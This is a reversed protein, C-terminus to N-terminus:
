RKHSETRENVSIYATDKGSLEKREVEGKPVVVLGLCEDKVELVGGKRDPGVVSGVVPM